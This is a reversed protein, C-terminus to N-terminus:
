STEFNHSQENTAKRDKSQYVLVFERRIMTLIIPHKIPHKRWCCEMSLYRYLATTWCLECIILKCKILKFTLYHWLHLKGWIFWRKKRRKKWDSSLFIRYKLWSHLLSFPFFFLVFLSCPNCFGESLVPVSTIFDQGIEDTIHFLLWAFFCSLRDPLVAFWHSSFFM